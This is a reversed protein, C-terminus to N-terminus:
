GEVRGCVGWGERGEFFVFFCVFSAGKEWFYGGCFALGGKQKWCVRDEVFM